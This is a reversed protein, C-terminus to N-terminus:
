DKDPAILQRLQLEGGALRKLVAETQKGPVLKNLSTTIFPHDAPAFGGRRAVLVSRAALALEHSGAQQCVAGLTAIVEDDVKGQGAKLLKEWAPMGDKVLAMLGQIVEKDGGQYAHIQFPDHLRARAYAAKVPESFPTGKNINVAGPPVVSTEAPVARSYRATRCL